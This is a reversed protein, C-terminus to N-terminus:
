NVGPTGCATLEVGTSELDEFRNKTKKEKKFYDSNSTLSFCSHLLCMLYSLIAANKLLPSHKVFVFAKYQLTYKSYM